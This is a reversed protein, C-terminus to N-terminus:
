DIIENPSVWALLCKESGPYNRREFSIYWDTLGQAQITIRLFHYAADRVVTQFNATDQVWENM